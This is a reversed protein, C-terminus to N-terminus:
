RSLFPFHYHLPIYFGLSAIPPKQRVLATGPPYLAKEQGRHASCVYPVCVHMLCFVQVCLILTLM